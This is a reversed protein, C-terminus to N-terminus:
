IARAGMLDTVFSGGDPAGAKSPIAFFSTRTRGDAYLGVSGNADSGVAGNADSGAAGDNTSCEETSSQDLSGRWFQTPHELGM